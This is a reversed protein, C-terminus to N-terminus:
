LLRVHDYSDENKCKQYESIMTRMPRNEIDAVDYDTSELLRVHDYSDENKGNKYEESRMTGMPRNEVDAVDYDGVAKTELQKPHRNNIVQTYLQDTTEGVDYIHDEYANDKNESESQSSIVDSKNSSRTNDSLSIVEEEPSKVKRRFCFIRRKFAILMMVLVAACLIGIAISTVVIVLPFVEPEPVDEYCIARLKKDCDKTEIHLGRGRHQVALCGTGRFTTSSLNLDHLDQKSLLRGNTWRWRQLRNLGIWYTTSRRRISRYIHPM